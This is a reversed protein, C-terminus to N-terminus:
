ALAITRLNKIIPVFAQNESTGILKIRFKKFTTNLNVTFTYEKLDLLTPNDIFRDQKSIRVDSSGNNNREDITSGNTDINNYGPFLVFVNSDELSYLLRIDSNNHVYADLLVKSSSAPSELEIPNSIYVFLNPDDIVSNVRADNAYDSIPSNIRNSILTLTANSLDITPSIRSDSSSLFANINLSKNAPLDSLYNTENIKSAIVRPSDFYNKNANTIDQLGQDEFSVENGGLSTGSVTQIASKISTGTPSTQKINPIVIEFPINYTAKGNVGGVKDTRGFKLKGFGTGVSRDIGNTSMDVKIYYHNVGIPDSITNSVDSLNHNKNIRRLSVGGLEYKQVVTGIPYTFGKTSDVERSVGTLSNTTTGTYSLIEGLIKIYGPNSPSVGVNEFTSFNTTSSVFLENSTGSASPYLATTTVTPIDSNIDKITVKNSSSHMGHNRHFVKIHTGDTITNINSISLSTGNNTFDTTLGSNNIFKVYDTAVTTFEGQINDIILENKAQIQSVSLRMGSGLNQSGISIPELIDGVVYGFGGNVITAGSAVVGGNNITINATANLGSGTISTLAVGTYTQPSGTYGVGPNVVSLTGTASGAYGVLNGTATSLGSPNQIITNGLTLQTNTITSSLSVRVKNSEITLPDKTMVQLNEPLDSNFFQAFGSTTFNARYLEFTLDEYSSPEWTSANQSKFLSGLLRQTTVLIQNQETSLTAVDSEGLRSIWVNYENSNSIIIIAYERQSELFVPSEFVFSTPLSADESTVVQSPSLEVESFALIKQSPIGLEVERIQVTVPLTEDKTRFYVDVKTLYIGTPDDVFFSQALPDRYEGTLRTNSSLTQTSTSTRTQSDLLASDSLSRTQRFSDDVEVRANRLSLTTEQSSDIDGQSYFTEEAVTTVVGPIQSNTSSSTLRFRSRGTEFQPTGGLGNPIFYSGILTGVRDTILRVNTVNAEAGSTLGRLKMGSLLLGGYNPNSEDALSFTDINLTTSTSSYLAPVNIDRDYPSRDFVDTPDNYPGYKHNSNAVRFSLLSFSSDSFQRDIFEGIVTEGVQFVGSVMEIEILKSFCYDSVDVGDFFPYVQTYPKMRRSTFEINRSRMFTIIDRRVIRDGLSETDIQENVTYQVGTRQQDLRVDLFTNTTTTTTTTSSTSSTQTGVRFTSPVGTPPVAGVFRQFEAANGQRSGSSTNTSTSSSSRSSTEVRRNLDIGTTEWSNWIVPSVGLRQGDENTSIETRLAEAIGLFSGEMTVNNLELRNVDIWVDATPYLQISGEWLKVFFPTVNETRTAFPQRLWSTESYDLTLVDGTRKINSGIVDAYRKDNNSQSTTGIGLITNNGIELKLNTTYHSPRLEGNKIDISNKVGNTLDQTLLSSFNDVFFGSKFRNAGTGDDVFLNQTNTELLSLSTYYELNKIRSELNFIDKMQYRKHQIYEITADSTNYLYAPLYVNAINMAGSVEEPLVPNDSPNGYKIVFSKDKTLYIRDIRPLYYSYTLSVSEDSAIVDKSSHNSNNFSRGSFEFPSRSGESVTYDSVRPRCDILDTNRYGSISPIESGYDFSNYSNKVTIDGTDSTDYFGRMFFVKLKRQPETANNKRVLRSYDYYSLTQGNDLLFRDTINKSGVNISGIIGRVNSENFTVIEGNVFNINNEYIFGVSTDTKREVYLARAGSTSGVLSEGILLDNTTASPGDMSGITASPSQPDSTNDSEFVGYLINVDPYNLCVEQDQVRTGYPYNGYALGDNTTTSGIGSFANSSKNIVISDVIKKKKTKSKIKSKRLTAVLVCGSDNSGLNNIQLKTSGDQFDFRDETLTEFSGNSRVLIYREEDFPLFVENEGASIVNTSNSTITIGTFQKRIILQSDTLDVSEINKKPLVSFLSNNNSVNGSNGTTQIKTTLVSLDNVNIQSTPLTGYVVGTVDTVSSIEFQRSQYNVVNVKAYSITSIGPQSYQVLNGTTVIGSINLGNVTVTSIGGSSSTITANGILNLNSQVTDASFTVGTGANTSHVSKVDSIGYNKLDVVYRSTQNESTRGIGSIGTRPSNFTIGEKESFQGSIQYITITNLGAVSDKLYGTAGTLKGQIYTPTNLTVPENLTAVSYTQVDFLTLDWKNTDLNSVDYGGQELAFDYVRAIGIENGSATYSSVGVREDRLSLTTSTNFGILASGTVNNVTLTPGFGFNVSQNKITKTTRPKPADLFTPGLFEVEYGKVYAKGPSVKYISLDKSPVSGDYTLEGEKFIGGNGVGDNLSDKCYTTFSKVYYHGSEDFTRKALEDGLINYDTSNNLERLVGNQVTALQVFGSTDFDNLDKKSLTATIKFRDAGPASYNNFGQANDTLTQDEDSTIVEEKISLGIRYNPKNTYQDLILIEDLVEVFSGRLFYVGNSLAFASGVSTSNNSLTSAFGEGSSIFSNGFVINSESILVENDAFERQSSDNSASNIYDLYLTINGKESEDSSLVKVIKATVGSTRGYIKLGILNNLYLSVPIGSYESNIEVAYFNSIYTLQGPIVRAGEKFFHSGFQEIQNKLISQLTTLERAQVPYGPKFLVKHYNKNKDFDDFYPSVNLNTEQPM